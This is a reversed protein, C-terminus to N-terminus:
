VTRSSAAVVLKNGLAILELFEGTLFFRLPVSLQSRSDNRLDHTDIPADPGSYWVVVGHAYLVRYSRRFDQEFDPRPAVSPNLITDEACQFDKYTHNPQLREPRTPSAGPKALHDYKITMRVPFCGTMRRHAKAAALSLDRYKDQPTKHFPLWKSYLFDVTDQSRALRRWRRCVRVFMHVDQLDLHDLVHLVLETPLNGLIDLRIKRRTLLLQLWDADDDSARDVLDYLAQKREQEDKPLTWRSVKTSSAM